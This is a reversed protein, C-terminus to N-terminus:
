SPLKGQAKLEAIAIAPTLTKKVFESSFGQREAQQGLDGWDIGDMVRTVDLDGNKARVVSRAKL